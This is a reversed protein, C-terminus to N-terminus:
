GNISSLTIYFTATLSVIQAVLAYTWKVMGGASTM